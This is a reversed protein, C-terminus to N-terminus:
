AHDPRGAEPASAEAIVARLLQAARSLVRELGAVGANVRVVTPEAGFELLRRYWHVFEQTVTAAQAEPVVCRHDGVATECLILAGLSSAKGSEGLQRWLPLAAEVQGALLLAEARQRQLGAEEPFHRLAEGTWDVAVELFEARSLAISGGALWAAVAQPREATFQHLLQLGEVSRGQEHLFRAYDLVVPVSEPDAERALQFEREAAELHKGQILCLALCHRPGAKRIEVNVPSLAPRDRKALCQRFQEAAAAFEQLEMQALGLSFHLSATLGTGLRALPSTLVQVIEAHCKAAMLQTCCQALLMERAEPVVRAPPEAAMADLAARYQRLGEAPRGARTLELGYNMLLNAEGPTEIVARELLRLNRGVKDREQTLEKTYGYHRLTADGMRTELGWEQRRVELSTFVQEHVRGVYFLGPANRFLRPVYSCGEAERGVDQLRLRWSIVAAARLLKRLAEHQAPPLEEDADLMLVWDGRAHELAANRAASFDDCWTFAHVEAGHTRAIEVTRDTSGTDVVVIQDALGKVSDLCQGLFREENRAILCVSLHPRRAAHPDRLVEPLVLWESKQNGYLNGKLFKKAPRFEPALQRAFQACARAAVSDHAALAIEALLLYAEPHFPRHKLAARTAGWAAPLKKHQFFQRAEGLQGQLACAPLVIPKPKQTPLPMLKDTWLRGDPSPQHTLKLEPLPVKLAVGPPAVDPTLYGPFPPTEPPIAWKRKFLSWNTQMAQSYNIGAGTFTASGVHHVFSDDAIRTEFGALHARICFDDDEFNGSGFQEDLGGVAEVVERRALLCFGVVRNALCSQGAHREGWAAAFGPLEELTTYGVKDIQQKGLVRNSRPGVVGTRAHERLVRLMNGLWGPTVVTDNNLLLVQGGTALALGQNNGGAYGRNTRNSVVLVRQHQAAYEQLYDRTGDTSANDVVILEHPEPTHRAISELCNRTHELQNLTLVVISTLPAAVAPPAYPRIRTTAAPAAKGDAAVIVDLHAKGLWKQHLRRINERVKQFRAPGSQSEHHIVVSAPEYVMHWGQEQFRFCLDVDEYGNWFGEDFGGVAEFASKRVMLCAATLAQYVRRQNAEPLDAPAKYYTHVALLPDRGVVEGIAVGAHQLTGDPFLLKSGLAAIGADAEALAILPELWGAKVETDNNLFLVYRGRAAAAGQNCAKAFGLNESNAIVRLHGAAAASELLVNTGDM